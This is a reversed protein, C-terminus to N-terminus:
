TGQVRWGDAATYTGLVLGEGFVDDPESAFLLLASVCDLGNMAVQAKALADGADAGGVTFCGASAGTEYRLFYPM